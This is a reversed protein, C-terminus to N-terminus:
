YYKLITKHPLYEIRKFSVLMKNDLFWHEDPDDKKMIVEFNLKILEEDTKVGALKKIVKIKEDAVKMSIAESLKSLLEPSADDTPKYKGIVPTLDIEKM